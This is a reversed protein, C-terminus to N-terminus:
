KSYFTSTRLLKNMWKNRFILNLAQISTQITIQRFTEIGNIYVYKSSFQRSFLRDFWFYCSDVLIVDFIFSFISISIDFFLFVQVINAHSPM